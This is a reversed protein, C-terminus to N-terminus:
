ETTPPCKTEARDLANTRCAVKQLEIHFIAEGLRSLRDWDVPATQLLEWQKQRLRSERRNLADLVAPRTKTSPM